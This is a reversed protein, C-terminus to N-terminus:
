GVPAEDNLGPLGRARGVFFPVVLMAADFLLAKSVGFADILRANLLAGIALGLFAAQLYVALVRGRYREVSQMQMATNLSSSVSIHGVGTIVMGVMGVAFWRTSGVIVQGAIFCALGYTTVHSRQVRRLLFGVAMGALVAGVGYSTVLLGNDSSPHHYQLKAIAAALSQWSMSFIGIWFMFFPPYWLTAHRRVYRWGDVLQALPGETPRVYDVPRLRVLFMAAIVFGFSIANLMFSLSPGWRKLALSGLAPGIARGLAYQTSNLRIASALAERPVLLPQITSWAPTSIGGAGGSVALATLMGWLPTNGTTWMAWLVIASLMQVANCAMIVRRRDYRDSIPGAAFTALLGSSVGVAATVGLWVTKHTTEYVVVPVAVQQLWTGTGSVIAASWALAFDRSRLAAYVGPENPVAPARIEPASTTM